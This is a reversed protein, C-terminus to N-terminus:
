DNTPTAATPSRLSADPAAPMWDTVVYGEEALCATMATKIEAEKRARQARSVGYIALPAILVMGAALGAGAAVGGLMGMGSAASGAAAVGAAGGVALGGLASGGRGARFSSRRGEAVDRSCQAFAAEWAPTADGTLVPSFPRPTSACGTVTLAAAVALHIRMKM